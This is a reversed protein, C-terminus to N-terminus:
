GGGGGGRTDSQVPWRVRFTAGAGEASDVWARGGEGEVLRRVIALGIGSGSTGDAGAGLSHFLTWIREQHRAPIGPGNDAVSFEVCDGDRRAGVHVRPEAARAHAVANGVLNQLVQRLPAAHTRLTPLDDDVTVTVHPPPDLTALVDRVLAATDVEVAAGRDRGARAYDLMGDILGRMRLAQERAGAAHARVEPTLAPGADEELWTAYNIVSRLPAKLDHSVAHAFEDLARNSRELEALAARLRSRERLLDRQTGALDANVDNVQERLLDLRPDRPHEVLVLTGPAPGRFVSFARPEAPTGEGALVLEWTTAGRAARTAGLLREWKAGSSDADIADVLRAGLMPRGLEADLRGNSDLVTGDAAVVCVIGPFDRMAEGLPLPAIPAAGAAPASM